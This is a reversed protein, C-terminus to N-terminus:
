IERLRAMSLGEEKVGTSYEHASLVAVAAPPGTPKPIQTPFPEPNRLTLVGAVRPTYESAGAARFFGPGNSGMIGKLVHDDLLAHFLTPM